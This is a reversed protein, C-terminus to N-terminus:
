LILCDLEAFVSQFFNMGDCFRDVIMEKWIEEPPGFIKFDGM